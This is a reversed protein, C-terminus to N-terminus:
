TMDSVRYGGASATGMDRKWYGVDGNGLGSRAATATFVEVNAIHIATCIQQILRNCQKLCQISLMSHSPWKRRFQLALVAIHVSLRVSGQLM